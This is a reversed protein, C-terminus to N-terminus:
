LVRKKIIVIGATIIILCSLGIVYYVVNNDGTPPIVTLEARSNKTNDDSEHTDSVKELNFNGPTVKGWTGNRNEGYFRGVDNSISVVESYNVFLSDDSTSLVKSARVSVLTITEGKPITVDCENLLITRRNKIAQYVEPQLLIQIASPQQLKWEGKNATDTYATVMNEDIYDIVSNLKSVVPKDTSAIIGYKYYNETNYDAESKNIVSITYGVDLTSGQIIENDAEIKLMGNPPYTVYNMTMTRPDGEVIVQGSASTLRIYDIEKILELSQRPREAIGFKVNYVRSPAKYDYETTQNKTDEIAFNMKGTTSIMFHNSENDKIEDYNTKVSYTIDKLNKNIEQRLKWDDLASSYDSLSTDEYWYESKDEVAQKFKDVTIITSKYDQTTVSVNNSLKTQLDGITGYKYRVVYEGPIIGEFIYTGDKPTLAYADKIVVDGNDGLTYLKIPESESDNYKILRVQVGRVTNNGEEYKGDGLRGEKDKVTTEDEFIKGSVTPSETRRSIKLDPASDTDDEYTSVEGYRINAPASDKDIGAYPKKNSDYSAYEKIETTNNLIRASQENTELKALGSIESTKLEYTLYITAIKGPEILTSIEDSDWVKHSSESTGTRETWNLKSGNEIYSDVFDLNEDAYNTLYKPNVYAVTSENKVVIKYTIYIRLRNSNSEDNKTYSIYSDYVGRTYTMDKYKGARNKASVSFGDLLMESEPRADDPVGTKAFESRQGYNYVHSYGNITMSLNDIDTAIALDPQEREYIGLNVNRIVRVGTSWRFTYGATRTDALMKGANVDTSGDLSEPTYSTNQVLKSNYNDGRTYTLPVNASTKGQTGSGTKQTNGMVYYYNENVRTRNQTTESVKSGNAANINTAVTEYKLGNYEFEISYQSIQSIDITYDYTKPNNDDIEYDGRAPFFYEGIKHSKDINTTNTRRKAIVVGNKKLYVMIGGIRVDDDTASSNDSVKYLNDRVSSKTQRKDEWVYGAIDVRKQINKAYYLTNAGQYNNNLYIAEDAIGIDYYQAMDDTLEVEEVHYIYYQPMNILRFQCNSDTRFIQANAQNTESYSSPKSTNAVYNTIYRKTGNGPITYYLKFGINKFVLPDLTVDGLQKDSENDYLTHITSGTQGASVKSNDVKEVTLNGYKRNTFWVTSTNNVSVGTSKVTDTQLTLNYGVPAGIETVTYTGPQLNNFQILGSANTTGYSTINAVGGTIRFSAGALRSGTDVDSKVVQISGKHTKGSLGITKSINFYETRSDSKSNSSKMRQVISANNAHQLKANGGTHGSVSYCSYWERWSREYYRSGGNVLTQSATINKVEITQLPLVFYLTYSGGGNNTLSIQSGSISSEYVYSGNNAVYTGSISIGVSQNTYLYYPGVIYNGGSISFQAAGSNQSLSITPNVISRLQWGTDDTTGAFSYYHNGTSCQGMGPDMCHYLVGDDGYYPGGPSPGKINLAYTSNAEILLFVFIFLAIKNLNGIKKNHKLLLYIVLILVGIMIIIIFINRVLGTKVSIIVTAESYDDEDKNKNGPTSDIDELNKVNICHAIEASNIFTGIDDDTSLQKTVTLTVEKSEGSSIKTGSLINTYVNGDSNTKWNNDNLTMGNPLYDIIETVSGDTTGENTVVIKYQIEITTNSIQKVPIEIKAMKQNSFNYEKTGNGNTVKIKNVYKDLKLDFKAKYILGMNIDTVDNSNVNIIDTIGVKKVVGDIAVEKLVVDSNKYYKSSVKYKTVDYEDEDFEFLVLYKGNSINSFKYNGNENTTLIKSNGNEDKLITNNDANYIKVTIGEMSKENNNLGNEDKDFWVQGSINYSKEGPEPDPEPDPDPDPTPDPDPNPDPKPDPEPDPDPDPDPIPDVYGEPVITFSVVNSVKTHIYKGSVTVYNSVVTPEEVERATATFVVELERGAPITTYFEMSPLINGDSDTMTNGINLTVDKRPYEKTAEQKLNYETYIDDGFDYMQFKAEGGDLYESLYDYVNISTRIKSENKIKLTYTIKQGSEVNKGTKDSEQTVTVYEPYCDRRNENSQVEDIGDSKVVMSMKLEYVNINDDYNGTSTRVIITKKQGPSIDGINAVYKNDKFEGINPTDGEYLIAELFSIEKSFESTEISVNKVVSDSVNEVELWYHMNNKEDRGMYSKVFASLIAPKIVNENTKSSIIQNQVKVEVTNSINRSQGNLKDVVVEYFREQTEGAELSDINIDWNKMNEYKVYEYNEYFYSGKDITAYVTGEPIQGNININSIKNDGNNVLTVVYKIIQKDYITDGNKLIKNGVQTQIKVNLNQKIEEINSTEDTNQTTGVNNYISNIEIGIQKFEQGDNEYDNKNEVENKYTVNINSDTSNINQSLIITAPILVNIGNVLSNLMYKTQEGQLEIRIVKSNSKEVVEKKVIKFNDDYLLSCNGLVVNEVERPLQIEIVPNKFLSYKESNAVLTATFNVDNQVNNTWNTKDVNLDIRTEADKIETINKSECNYIDKQYEREEEKEENSDEDIYKIIEKENNFCSITNKLEIKKINIDKMTEKIQRVNQINIDGIKEPQSLKIILESIENEYAIEVIGNENTETDKNIEGLVNGDIDLIQLNGNEGLEDLVENKNIKTSKYVIDQTENEVNELNMVFNKTDIKIEDAIQKYSIQINMKETYETRYDTNNKFNSNIYGNYIDSTTVDTSILGSLNESVEFNQMIDKQIKTEEDNKINLQMKGSFDLKRNENNENYCNESYYLVIQYEDRADTVNESYINGNDDPENVAVLKIKGTKNDYVYNFDKGSDDGNTAKTSKAVIEINEPYEDNIRPTNLIIGTSSLPNYEHGDEYEIGTKLNTQIMLGVSDGVKFNVYKELNLEYVANIKSDDIINQVVEVASSIVLLLSSNVMMLMIAFISITKRIFEKM